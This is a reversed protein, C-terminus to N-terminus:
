KMALVLESQFTPLLNRKRSQLNCYTSQLGPVAKVAMFRLPRNHNLLKPFSAVIRSAVEIVQRSKKTIGNLFSYIHCWRKWTFMTCLLPLMGLKSAINQHQKEM